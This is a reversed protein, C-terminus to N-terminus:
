SIVASAVAAALVRPLLVTRGTLTELLHKMEISYGMCDMLVYRGKMANIQEAAKQFDEQSGDYPSVPLVNVKMEPSEWQKLAEEKQKEDPVLVIFEKEECLAPLLGKLIKNPYILPVRSSLRDGFDGTCLFMICAVANQELSNICDQLLGLIKEEAMTVSRGDRLCSVLVTDGQEPAIALLEDESLNDLAGRQLVEVHEGFIPQIDEMIDLRPAQGITILGIKNM